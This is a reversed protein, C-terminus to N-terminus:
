QDPDQGDDAGPDAQELQAALRSLLADVEDMRYGRVATSFRVRRLDAGSLRGSPVKVDPRDPHVRVMPSGYGSAVVAVGGLALVVLIAFFWMM